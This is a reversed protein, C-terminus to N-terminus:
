GCPSHLAERGAHCKDSYARSIQVARTMILVRVQMARTVTNQKKMASIMEMLGPVSTDKPGQGGSSVQGVQSMQESIREIDEHM